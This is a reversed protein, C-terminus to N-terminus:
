LATSSFLVNEIGILNKKKLKPILLESYLRWSFSVKCNQKFKFHQYYVNSVACSANTPLANTLLNLNVLIRFVPAVSFYIYMYTVNKMTQNNDIDSCIDTTSIKSIRYLQSMHIIAVNNLNDDIIM